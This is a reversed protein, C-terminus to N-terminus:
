INGVARHRISGDIHFFVNVQNLQRLYYNTSALAPTFNWVVDANDIALAPYICFM